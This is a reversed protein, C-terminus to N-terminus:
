LPELLRISHSKPIAKYFRVSLLHDYREIDQLEVVVGISNFYSILIRHDGFLLAPITLVDTAIATAISIVNPSTNEIRANIHM